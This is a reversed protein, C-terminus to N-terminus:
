RRTGLYLRLMACLKTLSGGGNTPIGLQQVLEKIVDWPETAPVWARVEYQSEVQDYVHRALLTKGIGDFGVISIVKLQQQQEQQILELLEDRPRDMGVPRAASIDDIAMETMTKCAVSPPAASSSSTGTGISANSYTERLKSSEQSLKKLKRIAEAFEKRVMVTKARHVAQRIWSTGSKTVSHTYRDICDEIAHALDRM